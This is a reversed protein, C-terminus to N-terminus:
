EITDASVGQVVLLARLEEDSMDLSRGHEVADLLADLRERVRAQAAAYALAAATVSRRAGTRADARTGSQVGPTVDVRRLERPEMGAAGPTDAPEDAPRVPATPAAMSLGAALATASSSRGRRPAGSM